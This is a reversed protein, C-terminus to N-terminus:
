MLMHYESSTARVSRESTKKLPVEGRHRTASVADCYRFRKESLSFVVVELFIKLLFQGGGTGTKGEFVEIAEM